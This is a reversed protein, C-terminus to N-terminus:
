KKAQQVAVNLGCGGADIAVGTCINCIGNTLIKEARSKSEDHKPITITFLTADCDQFKGAQPPTLWIGQEENEIVSFRPGCRKIM